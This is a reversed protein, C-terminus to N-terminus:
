LVNNIVNLYSNPVNNIVNLYSNPVNNIVNLYSNPVNNIVNLYSSCMISLMSIATPLMISFKGTRGGAIATTKQGEQVISLCRLPAVSLLRAPQLFIGALLHRHPELSRLARSFHRLMTPLSSSAKLNSGQGRRSTRKWYFKITALSLILCSVSDSSLSM